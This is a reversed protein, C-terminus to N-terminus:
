LGDEGGELYNGKCVECPVDKLIQENWTEKIDTVMGETCHRCPTLRKELESLVITIANVFENDNLNYLRKKRELINIAEHLKM